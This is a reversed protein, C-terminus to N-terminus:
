DGTVQIIQHAFLSRYGSAIGIPLVGPEEIGWYCVVRVDTSFFGPPPSLTVNNTSTDKVGISNGIFPEWESETTSTLYLSVATTQTPSSYQKLVAFPEPEWEGENQAPRYLRYIGEQSEGRLQMDSSIKTYSAAGSPVVYEYVHYPRFELGVPSYSDGLTERVKEFDLDEFLSYGQSSCWSLNYYNTLVTSLLNVFLENNSSSRFRVEVYSSVKVPSVFTLWAMDQVPRIDNRLQEQYESTIPNGDKDLATVYVMGTIDMEGVLSRLYREYDGEVLVDGIGSQNKFWIEYEPVTSVTDKVFFWYRLKNVLDVTTPADSGNLIAGHTIVPIVEQDNSDTVTDLYGTISNALINGSKGQCSWTELRYPMNEPYPTGDGAFVKVFLYNNYVFAYYGNSPVITNGQLVCPQIESGGLYVKLQSLDLGSASIKIYEHYTGETISVEGQRVEVDDEAGPNLVVSSVQTYLTGGASLVRGSDLSVPGTATDPIAVHITSEAATVNPVYVLLAALWSRLLSEPFRLLESYQTLQKQLEQQIAVDANDGLISYIKIIESEKEEDTFNALFKSSFSM